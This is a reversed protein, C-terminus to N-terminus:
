LRELFQGNDWGPTKDASNLLVAKIVRGDTGHADFNVHAVDALLAAGGAVIPAAFSTGSADILYFNNAGNSQDVGGTNSGTAGGYYALALAEGPAAIDVVPRVGHTTRGTVPNFFDNPGRSSFTSPQTYPNATTDAALSAVAIKNYGSAPAGVTNSDPGS